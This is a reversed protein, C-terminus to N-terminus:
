PKELFTRLLAALPLQPEHSRVWLRAGDARHVEIETSPAPLPWASAASVEVFDVAPPPPAACPRPLVATLAIAHEWLPRPFPAFRYTRQQRWQAFQEALDTLQREAQAATMTHM